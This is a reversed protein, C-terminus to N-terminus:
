QRGTGSCSGCTVWTSQGGAKGNRNMWEGGAGLCTGCVPPPDDDSDNSM